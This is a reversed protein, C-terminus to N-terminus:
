GSRAEAAEDEGLIVGEVSVSAHMSALVSCHKHALDLARSLREETLNDARVAVRLRIHTYPSTTGKPERTGVVQVRYEKLGVRMKELIAVADLSFCGAVAELLLEMPRTGKGEGGAAPAADIVVRHGAPNHAYFLRRGQWIAEVSMEVIADRGKVSRPSGQVASLGDGAAPSGPRRVPRIGRPM